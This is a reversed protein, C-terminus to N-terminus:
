NSAYNAEAECVLDDLRPQPDDGDPVVATFTCAGGEWRARLVKTGSLGPIYVEGGSTYGYWIPITLPGRGSQAISIVGVHLDALFRERETTTMTRPM